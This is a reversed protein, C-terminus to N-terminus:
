FMRKDGDKKSLFHITRKSLIGGVHKTEIYFNYPIRLFNLVVNAIYYFLDSM